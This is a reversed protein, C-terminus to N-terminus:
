KERKIIGKIFSLILKAALEVTKNNVDYLPNVEMLNFLKINNNRGAMFAALLIQKKTFGKTCPASCGPAFRKQVSDIDVDFITANTKRAAIKFAKDLANKMGIKNIYDLRLLVGKKQFVYDHHEKLNKPAHVGLEVFNEGNLFGAELLRRFPTGSTIKGNVVPRVDYHADINIQGIKKSELFVARGSGFSIDHGGGIVISIEGSRISKRVAKTVRQHTKKVNKAIPRVTEYKITIIDKLEINRTLKYFDRIIKKPGFRAGPRGNILKVGYDFPVSIIRLYFRKM